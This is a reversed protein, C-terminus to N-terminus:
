TSRGRKAGATLVAAGYPPLTVRFRLTDGRPEPRVAAAKEGEHHLLWGAADRLGVASPSLEVALVAPTSKGNALTVAVGRPTHYVYGKGGRVELGRDDVFRGHSVFRATEKRLRALRAVHAALDPADSLLGTMDRTAVAMFSGTAFADSVVDRQNEDICWCPIMSPMVYRFVPVSAWEAGRWGWNWWVDIHQTNYLDPIEAITYAEPNRRRAARTVEGYWAYTREWAEWPSAHGHRRSLCYNWESAQDV